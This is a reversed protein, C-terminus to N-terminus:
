QPALIEVNSRVRHFWIVFVIVTAVFTPFGLIASFASVIAGPNDIEDSGIYNYTLVSSVIGLVGSFVQVALLIQAAISLGLPARPPQGMPMPMPMAMPMAM